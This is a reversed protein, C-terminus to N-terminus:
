GAATLGAVSLSPVVVDGFLSDLSVTGDAGLVVTVFELGKLVIDGEYGVVAADVGPEGRGVVASPEGAEEGEKVAAWFRGFQDAGVGQFQEVLVPRFLNDGM